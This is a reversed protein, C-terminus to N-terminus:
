GMVDEPIRFGHYHLHYHTVLRGLLFHRLPRPFLVMFKWYFWFSHGGLTGQEVCSCLSLSRTERPLQM